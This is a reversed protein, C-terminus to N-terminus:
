RREETLSVNAIRVPDSGFTCNAIGGAGPAARRWGNSDVIDIIGQGTSGRERVRSDRIRARHAVSKVRVRSAAGTSGTIIGGCESM